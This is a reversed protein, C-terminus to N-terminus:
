VGPALQVATVAYDEVLINGTHADAVAQLVLRYTGATPIDIVGSAGVHETYSPVVDAVSGATTATTGSAVNYLAMRLEVAPSHAGPARFSMSGNVLLPGPRTATVFVDAGPVDSYGTSDFVCDCAGTKAWWPNGMRGEIASVRQELVDLDDLTAVSDLQADMADLRAGMDTVVVGLGFINAEADDLRSTDEAPVAELADLRDQIDAVEARLGGGCASLAVALVLSSVLTHTCTNHM